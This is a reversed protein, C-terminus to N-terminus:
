PCPTRCDGTCIWECIACGHVACCCDGGESCPSDECQHHSGSLCNKYGSCPPPYTNNMCCPLEGGCGKCQRSWNDRCANAGSYRDSGTGYKYPSATCPAYSGINCGAGCGTDPGGCGRIKPSGIVPLMCWTGGTGTITVTASAVNEACDDDGGDSTITVTFTGCNAGGIAVTVESGAENVVCGISECNGSVECETNPCAPSITGVWSAGAAVTGAGTLEVEECCELCDVSVEISDDCDLPGSFSLEFEGGKGEPCCVTAMIPGPSFLLYCESSLPDFHWSGYAMWWQPECSLVVHAHTYTYCDGCELEDPGIIGIATCSDELNCPNEIPDPKIIPPIDPYTITPWTMEWGQYTDEGDPQAYPKNFESYEALDDPNVTPDNWDKRSFIELWELHEYMYPKKSM